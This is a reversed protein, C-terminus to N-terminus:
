IGRDSNRKVNNEEAWQVALLVERITHGDFDYKPPNRRKAEYVEIDPSASLAVFEGESIPEVYGDSFVKHCESRGTSICKLRHIARLISM